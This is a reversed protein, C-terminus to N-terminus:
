ESSSSSSTAVVGLTNHWVAPRPVVGRHARGHESRRVAVLPAPRSVCKYTEAPQGTYFPPFGNMFEYIVCGLSWWDVALSHGQLAAARLM